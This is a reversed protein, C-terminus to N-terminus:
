ATMCFEAPVIAPSGPVFFLKPKLTLYLLLPDFRCPLMLLMTRLPPRTYWIWPFEMVDRATYWHIGLPVDPAQTAPQVPAVEVEHHLACNLPLALMVSMVLGSSGTETVPLLEMCNLM